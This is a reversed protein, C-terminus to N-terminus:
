IDLKKVLGLREIPCDITSKPIKFMEEIERVTIHRDSEIICESFLNSQILFIIQKFCNRQHLYIIQKFSIFNTRNLCFM